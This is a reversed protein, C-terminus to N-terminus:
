FIKKKYNNLKNNSDLPKKKSKRSIQLKQGRAKINKRYIKNQFFKNEKKPPTNM